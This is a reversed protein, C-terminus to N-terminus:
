RGICWSSKLSSRFFNRVFLRVQAPSFLLLSIYLRRFFSQLRHHMCCCGSSGGNRRCDGKPQLSVQAFPDAIHYKSLLGPAEMGQVQKGYEPPQLGWPTRTATGPRDSYSM